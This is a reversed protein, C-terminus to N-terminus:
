LQAEPGAATRELQSLSSYCEWCGHGRLSVRPPLERDGSGWSGHQSHATFNHCQLSKSGQSATFMGGLGHRPTAVARHM